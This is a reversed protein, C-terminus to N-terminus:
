AAKSSAERGILFGASPTPSFRAAMPVGPVASAWSAAGPAHVSARARSKRSPRCGAARRILHTIEDASEAVLMAPTHVQFGFTGFFTTQASKIPGVYIVVSGNSPDDKIPQFGKVFGLDLRVPRTIWGTDAPIRQTLNIYDPM